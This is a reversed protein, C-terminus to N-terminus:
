LIDQTNVETLTKPQEQEMTFRMDYPWLAGKAHSTTLHAFGHKQGPTSAYLM